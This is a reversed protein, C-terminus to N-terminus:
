PGAAAGVPRGARGAADPRLSRAQLLAFAGVVAAQAVTWVRGLGNLDLAGSVAVVLSAVVWVANVAVVDWALWRPGRRWAAIAVAATFALLGVGLWRATETTLGILDFVLGAALLYTLANAGTVVADLTFWTPSVLARNM